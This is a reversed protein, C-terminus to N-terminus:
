DAVPQLANQVGSILRMWVGIAMLSLLAYLAILGPPVFGLITQRIHWGAQASQVVSNGLGTVSVSSFGLLDSLGADANIGVFSLCVLLSFAMTGAFLAMAGVWPNHAPRRRPLRVMVKATFDAPPAVLPAFVLLRDVNKVATWEALCPACDAVHVLLAAERESDVHGNLVEDMLRSANTCLM